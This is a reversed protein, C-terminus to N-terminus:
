FLHRIFLWALLAMSFPKVAWNVFLTVGIGKWHSRVQHLAGFDIKMLMPIIMIWILIGVPINVQAVEMRGLAQFPAPLFQGLAVGAVICLAVWLTLWREFVNMPAGAAQKATVGCQASM